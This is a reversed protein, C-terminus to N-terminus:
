RQATGSQRAILSPWNLVVRVEPQVDNGTPIRFVFRQGDPAARYQEINASVLFLPSKFLAQPPSVRVASDAADIRAAYLTGDLGLYYLTRGDPSWLPQVGGGSSVQWKPGIATTSGIFVELRGTEAAQLELRSLLEATDLEIADAADRLQIVRSETNQSAEM